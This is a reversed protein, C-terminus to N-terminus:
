VATEERSSKIASIRLEMMKPRKIGAARAQQTAEKAARLAATPFRAAEIEFDAAHQKKGNRVYASVKFARM